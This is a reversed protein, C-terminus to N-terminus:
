LSLLYNIIEKKISENKINEKKINKRNNLNKTDSYTSNFPVGIITVKKLKGIEKLLKLVTCLDFDHMTSTTTEKLLNIDNIIKVKNIGRVVDIIIIEGKINKINENLLFDPSTCKVFEFRKNLKKDKNLEDALELAAADEKIDPNGFCYINKM